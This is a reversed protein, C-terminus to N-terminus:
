ISMRKLHGYERLIEPFSSFNSVTGVDHAAVLKMIQHLELIDLSCKFRLSISLEKAHLSYSDDEFRFTVRKPYKILITLNTKNLRM